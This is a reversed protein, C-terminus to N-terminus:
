ELLNWGLGFSEGRLCLVFLHRSHQAWQSLELFMGRVFRIVFDSCTWVTRASDFFSIQNEWQIVWVVLHSQSLEALHNKKIEFM